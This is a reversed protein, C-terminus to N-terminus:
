APDSDEPSPKDGLANSPALKVVFDFSFPIEGVANESMELSFVGRSDRMVTGHVSNGKGFIRSLTKTVANQSGNTSIRLSEPIPLAGYPLELIKEKGSKWIGSFTRIKENELEEDPIDSVFASKDTPDEVIQLKEPDYRFVHGRYYGGFFPEVKTEIQDESMTESQELGTNPRYSDGETTGTEAKAAAVARDLAPVIHERYLTAMRDASYGGSALFDLANKGGKSKMGSLASRVADSVSTPLKGTLVYQRCAHEFEERVSNGSFPQNAIAEALDPSESKIKATGAIRLASLLSRKDAVRLFSKPDSKLLTETEALASAETVAAITAADDSSFRKRNVSISTKGDERAVSFKKGSDAIGIRVGLAESVRFGGVVPEATRRENADPLPTNPNPSM